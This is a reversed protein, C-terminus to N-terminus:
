SCRKKVSCRTAAEVIGRSVRLVNGWGIHLQFKKCKLFFYTCSFSFWILFSYKYLDQLNELIWSFQAWFTFFDNKKQLHTRSLSVQFILIRLFGGYIKQNELISILKQILSYELLSIKLFTRWNSTYSSRSKLSIWWNKLVECFAHCSVSPMIM